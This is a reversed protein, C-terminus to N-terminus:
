RGERSNYALAPWLTAVTIATSAVASGLLMAVYSDAGLGARDDLLGMAVNTGWSVVIAILALTLLPMFTTAVHTRARERRSAGIVALGILRDRRSRTEGAASVGLALVAVAVAVTAGVLLITIESAYESSDTDTAVGDGFDFGSTPAISSITALTESVNETPARVLYRRPDFQSITLASPSIKALGEFISGVGSVDVADRRRPTAVRGTGTDIRDSSSLVIARGNTQNGVWQLGNTCRRAAVGAVRGLDDCDAVIALVTDKNGKLDVVPVAASVGDIRRVRDLSLAFAYDSVSVTVFAQASPVRENTGGQLISLFGGAGAIGVLVVAVVGALRTTTGPETSNIKFGVFGGATRSHRAWVKSLGAVIGAASLLLGIAAVGLSTWLTMAKVAGQPLWPLAVLAVGSLGLAAFGSKTSSTGAGPVRRKSAIAAEDLGSGAAAVVVAGMVVLLPVGVFMWPELAAQRGDFDIRTGPIHNLRRGSDFLALGLVGGPIAAVATEVGMVARIAVRSMGLRRLARIRTRRERSGLRASLVVLALTPISVIIFVLAGLGVQLSRQAFSMSEVTGGQGDTGELGITSPNVGIIARLERPNVLGNDQITGIIDYESMLADITSDTDM